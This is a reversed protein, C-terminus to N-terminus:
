RVARLWGKFAYRLAMADNLAHHESLNNKRYFDARKLGDIQRYGIERLIIFNPLNNSFLKLLLRKDYNSDFCVIVPEDNRIANLWNLLNLQLYELSPQSTSSLLPMVIDIVFQSCSAHTFPVEAYFEKGSSSALGISILEPNEFETFETDFFILLM